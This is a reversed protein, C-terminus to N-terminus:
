DEGAKASLRPQGFGIRGVRQLGQQSAPCARDDLASARRSGANRRMLRRIKTIRTQSRADDVVLATDARDRLTVIMQGSKGDIKSTVSSSCAQRRRCIRSAPAPAKFFRVEPGFTNDLENPGLPEPMCPVPSSNGSRNSIASSPRTPTTTIRPPTICTATLWVTIVVGSTKIFRLLDAIELERGRPPGDGQAFAESGKKNAAHTM